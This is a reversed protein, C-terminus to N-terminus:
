DSYVRFFDLDIFFHDLNKRDNLDFFSDYIKDGCVVKKNSKIKLSNPNKHDIKNKNTKILDSLDLYNIM